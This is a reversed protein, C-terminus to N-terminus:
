RHPRQPIGGEALYGKYQSFPTMSVQGVHPRLRRLLPPDGWANPHNQSWQIAAFLFDRTGPTGAIMAFLDTGEARQRGFCLSSPTTSVRGIKKLYDMLRGVHFDMNEVMGAYLEMKKGLVARSAPALLIPDPVFWMRESLETGPLAIGLEIQRQLREQRVADWGKDYEVVHRHALRPASSVPRPASTRFTLSSPNATAAPEGRHLQHNQRYLDEHRLLDKPLKKLYRGDETFTSKPTTATFNAMDWYSGAGDLLTFDREFGRAAPNPPPGQGHAMQRGHLHSLRCGQTIPAPDRVRDNLYGEYGPKGM